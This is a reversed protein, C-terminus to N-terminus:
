RGRAPTKHVSGSGPKLDPYAALIKARIRGADESPIGLTRSINSISDAETDFMISQKLLQLTVPPLDAVNPDRPMASEVFVPGPVQMPPLADASFKPPEMKPMEFRAPEPKPPAPAAPRAPPTHAHPKPQPPAPPHERRSEMRTEGRGQQMRRNVRQRLEPLSIKLTEAFRALLHYEPAEVRGDAAVVEILDELLSEKEHQTAPVAVNLKRQQGLTIIDNADIRSLNIAAAKQHLIQRESDSLAGDIFAAAVLAEYKKRAAAGAM